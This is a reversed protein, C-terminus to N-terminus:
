ISEDCAKVFLDFQAKTDPTIPQVKPKYKYQDLEAVMQRYLEHLRDPEDGLLLRGLRTAEYADHKADAWRLAKLAALYEKRKNTQRIKLWQRIAWYGAGAVVIVGFVILGWYLYISWDDMHALPKIDKLQTSIHDSAAMM